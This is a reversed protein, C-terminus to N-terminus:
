LNSYILPKPFVEIRNQKLKYCGFTTLKQVKKYTHINYM